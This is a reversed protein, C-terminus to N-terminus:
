PGPCLYLQAARCDPYTEDVGGNAGLDIAVSGASYVIRDAGAGHSAVVMGAAFCDAGAARELVDTTVITVGVGLCDSAMTGAVDVETAAPDVLVDLEYDTFDVGFAGSAGAFSAGGDVALTYDIPTGGADCAAFRASLSTAAFAVTATTAAEGTVTTTELDGTLQAAITDACDAANGTVTLSGSLGGVDVTTTAAEGSSTLTLAEIAFTLSGSSALCTEGPIGAAQIAGNSTLTRGNSGQLVCDAFALLFQPPGPPAPLLSRGCSYAFTGGGPCAIELPQGGTDVGFAPISGLTALLSPLAVFVDTTNVVAGAVRRAVAPDITPTASATATATRTSTPLPTVTRTSTPSVTPTATRTSTATSTPTTTKTASATASPSETRTATSSPTMSPTPSPTPTPTASPSPSSTPTTSPTPTASPSPTASPTPPATPTPTDTAPPSASPVATMTATPTASPTNTPPEPSVTAQPCGALAVGVAQLIEDVTVEGDGGADFPPCAAVPAAGLAINVGAVIEDVTVAGDGSCDGVCATAPAAGALAFTLLTLTRVTATCRIRSGM